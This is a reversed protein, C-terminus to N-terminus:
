VHAFSAKAAKDAGIPVLHGFDDRGGVGIRGLRVPGVTDDPERWNGRHRHNGIRRARSIQGQDAADAQGEVVPVAVQRRGRRLGPAFLRVNRLRGVPVVRPEQDEPARINRLRAGRVGVEIGLRAVSAGLADDNAGVIAFSRLEGIEPEMRFLTRIRREGHGHPVDYQALEVEVSLGLIELVVAALVGIHRHQHAEYFPVAVVHRIPKNPGRVEVLVETLLVIRFPFRNGDVLGRAFDNDRAAGDTEAPALLTLPVELLFVGRAVAGLQFECQDAVSVVVVDGLHVEGVEAVAMVIIKLAGVMRIDQGAFNGDLRDLQCVAVDQNRRHEIQKDGVISEVSAKAPFVDCFGILVVSGVCRSPGFLDGAHGGIMDDRDRPLEGAVGLLGVALGHDNEAGPEIVPVVHVHVVPPDDIEQDHAATDTLGASTPRVVHSLFLQPRLGSPQGQGKGEVPVPRRSLHVRRREPVGMGILPPVLGQLNVLDQRRRSRLTGPVAREDVVVNAGLAHAPQRRRRLELLIREVDRGRGFGVALLDLVVDDVPECGASEAERTFVRVFRLVPRAIQKDPPGIEESRRALAVLVEQFVQEARGVADHALVQTFVATLFRPLDIPVVLRRLSFKIKQDREIEPHGRGADVGVDNQRRGGPVLLVVEVRGVHVGEDMRQAARHIRNPLALAVPLDVLRDGLLKGLDRRFNKADLFVDHENGNQMVRGALHSLREVDLIPLLALNLRDWALRHRLDGDDFAIIGVHILAERGEPRQHVLKAVAALADRPVGLVLHVREAVEAARDRFVARGLTHRPDFGIDVRGFHDEHQRRLGIALHGDLCPFRQALRRPDVVGMEGRGLLVLFDTEPVNDGLWPLDDGRGRPGADLRLLDAVVGAVGVDMLQDRPSGERPALLEVLVVQPHPREALPEAEVPWRDVGFRHLRDDVLLRRASWLDHEVEDGRM